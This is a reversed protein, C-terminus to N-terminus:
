RDFLNELARNLLEERPNRPEDQEQQQNLENTNDSEQESGQAQPEDDGLARQLLDTLGRQVASSIAGAIIQQIDPLCSPNTVLGTCAIPLSYGGIDYTQEDNAPSEDVNALLNFNITEDALNVLMGQGTVDFGSSEMLLDNSSVIGNSIDITASFTDFPTQNGRDIRRAQGDRIMTEVQALVSGVDVGQLIGDTLALQGAGNLSRKITATDMGRGTLSIQVNGLGSVYSANMFDQLLPGVNINNLAFDLSAVPENSPISLRIDGEYNGDYLQATMPSLALEGNSANITMAINSLTLNSYVFEGISLQGNLNLQQLSDIPLETNGVQQQDSVGEEPALYRDLNIQSVDLNFDYAPNDFDALSFEGSIDTDDLVVRIDQLQMNIGDSDIVGSLGVSSFVTSDITEPLSFGIQRSLQRLNFAPIEVDGTISPSEDYSQINLTTLANLGLGTISANSIALNSNELDVIADTDMSLTAMGGPIEPGSVIMRLSLPSLSLNNKSGEIETRFDLSQINESAEIYGLASLLNGFQNGQVSLRGTLVGDDNFDSASINGSLALGLLNGELQSVNINGSELDTDFTTDFSFSRENLGSRLQRGYENLASDRGGTLQGIIQMMLPLDSGTTNVRGSLSPSDSTIDTGSLNGSFATGFFHAELEPISVSGSGLDADFRSNIFFDQSPARQLDRGYRTLTGDAGGLIYGAVEILTPLDPGEANLNGNIVPAETNINLAQMNTRISADLLDAELSSITLSGSAMDGALTAQISFGTNDLSNIQQTIEDIELVSFFVALDSGAASLSAQYAPTGSSLNGANLNTRLRAGLADVTLNQLSLLDSRGDISVNSALSFPATGGPVNNGSITGNVSFDNIDYLQNDLDYNLQGGITVDASLAPESARGSFSIDLNLPEGYVLEDTSANFDSISYVANSFKDDLTFSADRVSVGGIVLRNFVPQKSVSSPEQTDSNNAATSWNSQGQENVELQIHVGGLDINDIEYEQNLLPLLKIRIAAYDASMLPTESFGDPNEVRFSNASIGLWPYITLALEGELVLEHGTSDKFKEAIWEKNDNPDWNSIYLIAAMAVTLVLAVLSLIFTLIKKM